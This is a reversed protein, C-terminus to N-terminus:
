QGRKRTERTRSAAEIRLCISILIRKPATQSEHVLVDLLKRLDPLALATLLKEKITQFAKQCGWALAFARSRDRM